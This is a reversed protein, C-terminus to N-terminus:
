IIQHHVNICSENRHNIYVLLSYLNNLGKLKCDSRLYFHLDVSENNILDTLSFTYLNETRSTNIRIFFIFLTKYILNYTFPHCFTFIYVVSSIQVFYLNEKWTYFLLFDKFPCNLTLFWLVVIPTM